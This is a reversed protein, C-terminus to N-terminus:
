TLTGILTNEYAGYDTWTMACRVPKGSAEDLRTFGKDDVRLPLTEMGLGETTHCLYIALTDYLISSTDPPYHSRNSWAAYNEMVVRARVTNSEAVRRYADGKLQITGCTDLPATTIDWPATFVARSAEVDRFVNWEADPELKGGYGSRVSGAMLVLRVRSAIDPARRLLEGLNTLPGIACLTVPPDMARIHDILARVGDKLVTGPYHDLAYDGLWAQQNIPADDTQKGIGIPIDTRGLRELMRAVLRAKLPTNQSATVILRVDLLPNGLAQCLAWTDDIDDGIDTDLLLPIREPM